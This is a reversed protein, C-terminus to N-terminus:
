PRSGVCVQSLTRGPASTAMPLGTGARIHAPTLGTGAGIHAPTLGNGTCISQPPSRRHPASGSHVGESLVEVKLDGGVM